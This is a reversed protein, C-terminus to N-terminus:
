SRLRYSCTNKLNCRRCAEAATWDPVNTGLGYVTSLSKRPVMMAQPTLHIGAAGAPVLRFLTAQDSIPWGPVGPTLPGSARYGRSAAERSVIRCVQQSLSDLFANGIGDLLTAKLPESQQFYATVMEELGPGITYIVISLAKAQSLSSSLIRGHLIKGGDLSLREREIGVVNYIEYAIAPQLLHQENVMNLLEGSLATVGPKAKEPTGIGQRHMLQVTDLTLNIDTVVPM